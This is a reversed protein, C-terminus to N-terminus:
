ACFRVICYCMQTELSQHGRVEEKHLAVLDLPGYQFKAKVTPLAVGELAIM